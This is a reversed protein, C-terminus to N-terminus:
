GIDFDFKAVVNVGSDVVSSDSSPFDLLSPFWASWFSLGYGVGTVFVPHWINFCRLFRKTVALLFCHSIRVSIYLLAIM